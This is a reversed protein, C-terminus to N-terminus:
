PTLVGRRADAPSCHASLGTEAMASINLTAGVGGGCYGRVSREGGTGLPEFRVWSDGAGKPIGEMAPHGGSLVSRAPSAVLPMTPM